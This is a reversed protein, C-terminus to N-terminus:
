RGRRARWADRDLRWIQRPVEGSPTVITDQAIPVAGQREKVRGSRVNPIANTLILHDLGVEDFAFDVVRDAAETMLGRGQFEECLWFGRQNLGGDPRLTIVGIVEDPGGKLWLGWHYVGGEANQAVANELFSAAGDDPYPWPIAAGMMRVIEWRAFRRQISPADTLTVPKLWLRETELIRIAPANM